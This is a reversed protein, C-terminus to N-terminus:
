ALLVSFGGLEWVAFLAAGAALFWGFWGMADRITDNNAALFRVFRAREHTLRAV